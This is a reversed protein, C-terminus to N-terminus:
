LFRYGTRGHMNKALGSWPGGLKYNERMIDWVWGSVSNSYASKSHLDSSTRQLIFGDGAITNRKSILHKQGNKTKQLKKAGDFGKKEM